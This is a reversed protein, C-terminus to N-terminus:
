WTGRKSPLAASPQSGTIALFVARDEIKVHQWVQFPLSSAEISCERRDKGKYVQCLCRTYVSRGSFCERHKIGLQCCNTEVAQESPGQLSRPQHFHAALHQPHQSGLLACATAEGGTQTDQRAQRRSVWPGIQALGTESWPGGKDGAEASDATGISQAIRCQHGSSAPDRGADCENCVM